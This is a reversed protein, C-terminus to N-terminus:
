VSSETHACTLFEDDIRRVKKGEVKILDDMYEKDMLFGQLQMLISQVSYGSSWSCWENPTGDGWKRPELMDICIQASHSNQSHPLASLSPSEIHM